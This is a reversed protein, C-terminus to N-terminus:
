GRDPACQVFNRAVRHEIQARRSRRSGFTNQCSGAFRQTMTLTSAPSRLTRNKEEDSRLRQSISLSKPRCAGRAARPLAGVEERQGDVAVGSVHAPHEVHVEVRAAADATRARLVEGAREVARAEDVVVGVAEREPHVVALVEVGALGVLVDRRGVAPPQPDSPHAVPGVGVDLWTATARRGTAEAPARAAGSARRCGGRASAVGRAPSAARLVHPAASRRRGRAAPAASISSSISM